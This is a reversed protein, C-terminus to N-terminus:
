FHIGVLFEAQNLDSVNAFYPQSQRTYRLEGSLRVLPIKVDVGGGIVVGANTQRILTGAGSTIHAGIFSIDSLHNVAVGAEIFPRVVPFKFRYQALMPFTWQRASVNAPALGTAAPPVANSTAAFDYPRYLADFEFRLNLPLNIQFAPGITYNTNRASFLYGPQNTHNVVDTFPSGGLIGISFPNEAFAPISCLSILLLLKKM